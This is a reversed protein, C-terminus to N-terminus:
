TLDTACVLYRRRSTDGAKVDLVQAGAQVQATAESRVREFNRVTMEAGLTKRGTPNIREGIIVFPRGPGIRVERTPSSIVTEM